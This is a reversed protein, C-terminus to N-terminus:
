GGSAALRARIQDARDRLQLAASARQTVSLLDAYHDLAKAVTLHDPGYTDEFVSLARKLLPEAERYRAQAVYVLALNGLSQAVDPHNLGLVRQRM